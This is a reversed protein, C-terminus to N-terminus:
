GWQRARVHRQLAQLRRHRVSATLRASQASRSAPPYPRDSPLFVPPQVGRDPPRYRGASMHRSVMDALHAELSRASSSADILQALDSPSIEVKKQVAKSVQEDQQEPPRCIVAERLRSIDAQAPPYIFYDDLVDGALPRVEAEAAPGCLAFIRAEAQLRQAARCLAPFDPRPATLLVTSWRERGMAVLADYPDTHLVCRGSGFIGALEGGRPEDALILINPGDSM